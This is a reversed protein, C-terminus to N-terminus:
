DENTKIYVSKLLELYRDPIKENDALSNYVTFLLGNLVIWEEPTYSKIVITSQIDRDITMSDQILADWLKLSPEKLDMVNLKKVAEGM